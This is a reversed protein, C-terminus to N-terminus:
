FLFYAISAIIGINLLMCLPVGIYFKPKRTKHHFALMGLLGGTGGLFLCLLMLTKEPVRRKQRRALSKDVGFYVFTILSM